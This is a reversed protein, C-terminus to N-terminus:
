FDKFDNEDLPILKEPNPRKGGNGDGASKDRVPPKVPPVTKQLSSKIVQERSPNSPAPSVKRLPEAVKPKEFKKLVTVPQPEEEEEESLRFESIMTRLLEARNKLEESSAASEESNSANSQTVSDMQAVGNNIQEIGQAQEQASAAIEAVLDNVHNSSDVIENLIEAVKETIIVGGEANKVAEEIMGSTNRAAEASRQALSRVEEAVVAFGKGADGARAAEVAANLALLNTQFAIEDITKVIKATQSSSTKIRKIAEIMREMEVKGKQALERAATSLAKAQDANDSNQTTMSSMQELSSSVQELASAQENAGEALTRSGANIEGSALSVAEVTDAVQKLASNLSEVTTNINEMLESFRGKYNGSVRKTLDKAAATELVDAASNIPDVVSDLLDNIGKVIEAYEGKHKTVDARIDLQGDVAAKILQGVEQNMNKLSKIMEIMSNGLVDKESAAKIRIAMDGCAIHEAYDVKAKQAEILGQFARGIEGLEDPRNNIRQMEARDVGEMETDGLALLKAGDAIHVLPNAIKRAIYWLAAMAIILMVLSILIQEWMLRTAEVTIKNLPVVISAAWPSETEGIQVPAYIELQGEQSIAIESGDQIVALKDEMGSTKYFSGMTMGRLERNGTVAALVGEHSILVLRGTGDYIDLEDAMEQFPELSLDVGVIGHFEGDTQIPSVLSTLYPADAADSARFPELVCDQISEQPKTYYANKGDEAYTTLPVRVVEGQADREWCVVFRGSPDFGGKGAFNSDKGDFADPEWVTYIRILKPNEQLVRKLMVAADQRNLQLANQADKVSSLMQALTRSADLASEIEAKIKAANGRALSISEGRAAKVSTKRVSYVMSGTMVAAAVIMCLGTLMILRTKISRFKM